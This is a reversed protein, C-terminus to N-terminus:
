LYKPKRPPGRLNVGTQETGANSPIPAPSQTRKTYPAKVRQPAAKWAAEVVYCNPLEMGSRISQRCMGCGRVPLAMLSSVLDTQGRGEESAAVLPTATAKWEEPYESTEIGRTGEVPVIKEYRLLVGNRTSPKGM